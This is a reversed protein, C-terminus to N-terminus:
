EVIVIKQVKISEGVLQVFYIGAELNSVSIQTKDSNYKESILVNGTIDIINVVDFKSNDAVINVFTSTPNPYIKFDFSHVTNISTTVNALLNYSNSFKNGKYVKVPIILNGLYDKDPIITNPSNGLSYNAGESIVLNFNDPYENNEDSVVLDVLNITKTQNMRVNVYNQGTIIPAQEKNIINNTSQKQLSDNSITKETSYIEQAVVIQSFTFFSFFLVILIRRLFTM